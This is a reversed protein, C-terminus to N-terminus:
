RRHSRKSPDPHLFHQVLERLGKGIRPDIARSICSTPFWILISITVVGTVGAHRPSNVIKDLEKSPATM